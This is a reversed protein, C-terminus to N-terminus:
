DCASVSAGSQSIVVVYEHACVCVACMRVCMAICNDRTTELCKKEKEKDNIQGMLSKAKNNLDRISRELMRRDKVAADRDMQLTSAENVTKSLREQVKKEEASWKEM